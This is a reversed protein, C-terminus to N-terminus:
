LFIEDVEKNYKVQEFIAQLEKSFVWNALMIATRNFKEKREWLDVLDKTNSCADLLLEVMKLKQSESAETSQVAIHLPTRWDFTSCFVWSSKSSSERLLYILIEVRGYYCVSHLLSRRFRVCELDEM